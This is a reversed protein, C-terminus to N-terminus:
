PQSEETPYHYLKTSCVNRDAPIAASLFTQEVLSYWWENNRMMREASSPARIMVTFSARTYLRASRKPSLLKLFFVLFKRRPFLVPFSPTPLEQEVFLIM